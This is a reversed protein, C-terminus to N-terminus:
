REGFLELAQDLVPDVLFHQRALCSRKPQVLVVGHDAAPQALLHLEDGLIERPRRRRAFGIELSVSYRVM